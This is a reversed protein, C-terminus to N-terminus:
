EVEGLRGPPLGPLKRCQCFHRTHLQQPTPPVVQPVHLGARLPVRAPRGWRQDAPRDKHLAPTRSSGPYLSLTAAPHELYSM